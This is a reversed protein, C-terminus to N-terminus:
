FGIEQVTILDSAGPGAGVFHVMLIGGKDCDLIIVPITRFMTQIRLDTGRWEMIKVM